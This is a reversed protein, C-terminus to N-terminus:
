GDRGADVEVAAFFAEELSRQRPRIAFVDVGAAVLARNAAAVASPGGRTVLHRGGASVVELHPAVVLAARAADAVEWEVVGDSALLEGVPGEAVVRGARLIAVRTAVQQVEPLLHSSLLVTRGEEAALRRILARVERVGIPDLGETPEDLVVLEPAALLAAAIGLRQRMGHSYRGVRDLARDSLGVLALVDLLRQRSVGGSLDGLLRLNDWASLYAFFGPAEVFAGVRRLARDRYRWVDEGFLRAEGKTPRLLGLLLRLTTSKGAGNPGLLGYIDGRRVTLDIGAM